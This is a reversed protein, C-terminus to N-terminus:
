MEMSRLYDEVLFVDDKKHGLYKDWYKAVDRFPFHQYIIPFLFLSFTVITNFYIIKKMENFSQRPAFGFGDVLYLEFEYSNQIIECLFSTNLKKNKWQNLFNGYRLMIMNETKWDFEACLKLFIAMSLWIMRAVFWSSLM